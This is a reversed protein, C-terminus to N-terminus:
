TTAAPLPPQRRSRTSAASTESSRARVPAPSRTPGGSTTATRPPIPLTWEGSADARRAEIVVPCRLNRELWIGILERTQANVVGSIPGTYPWQNEVSALQDAYFTPQGQVGFWAVNPSTASIQLERVALELEVSFRQGLAENAAYTLAPGFGLEALDARLQAM